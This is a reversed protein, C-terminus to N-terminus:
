DAFPDSGLLAQKNSLGFKRYIVFDGLEHPVEHLLIAITTALGTTWNVAWSVGMAVGDLFRHITDGIVIGIVSDWKIKGSSGSEFVNVSHEEIDEAEVSNNGHAHSHGEKFGMVNLVTEFAWFSLLTGIIVAIKGLNRVYEKHEDNVIESGEKHDETHDHSHLGLVVPLTHFFADGLMTSSALSLFADFIYDSGAPKCKQVYIVITLGSLSSMTLFFNALTGYGYAQATTWAGNESEYDVESHDHGVDQKPCPRNFDDFPVNERRILGNTHVHSAVEAKNQAVLAAHTCCCCCLLAFRPILVQKM